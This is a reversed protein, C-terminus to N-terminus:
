RRFAGSTIKDRSLREVFHPVEIQHQDGLYTEFSLCRSMALWIDGELVLQGSLPYGITRKYLQVEQEFDQMALRNKVSRAPLTIFSANHSVSALTTEYFQTLKTDPTEYTVLM